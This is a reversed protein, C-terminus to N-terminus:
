AVPSCIQSTVSPCVGCSVYCQSSPLFLRRLTHGWSSTQTSISGSSVFWLPQHSTTPALELNFLLLYNSLHWIM